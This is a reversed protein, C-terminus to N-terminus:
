FNLQVKLARTECGAVYLVHYLPLLANTQARQKRVWTFLVAVIISLM